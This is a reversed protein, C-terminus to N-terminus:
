FNNEKNYVWLADMVLMTEISVNKQKAKIEIQKMTEKDARFANILLNIKQMKTLIPNIKYYLKLDVKEMKDPATLVYLTDKNIYNQTIWKKRGEVSLNNLYEKFASPSNGTYANICNLKFEQALFM